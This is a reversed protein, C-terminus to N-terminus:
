RITTTIVSVYIHIRIERNAKIEDNVDKWSIKSIEVQSGMSFKEEMSNFEAKMDVMSPYEFLKSELFKNTHKNCRQLTYSLVCCVVVVM